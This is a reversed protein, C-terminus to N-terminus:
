ESCPRSARLWFAMSWESATDALAAPAQVYLPPSGPAASCVALLLAGATAAHATGHLCATCPARDQFPAHTTGPARMCPALRRCQLVCRVSVAEEEEQSASRPHDFSSQRLAGGYGPAQAAM